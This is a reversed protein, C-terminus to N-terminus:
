QQQQGQYTKNKFDDEDDDNSNDKKDTPKIARTRTMITKMTM